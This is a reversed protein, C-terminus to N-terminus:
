LSGRHMALVALIRCWPLLLFTFNSQLLYFPLSGSQYKLVCLKPIARGKRETQFNGHLSTSNSTIYHWQLFLQDLIPVCLAVSLLSLIVCVRSFLGYLIAVSGPRKYGFTAQSQYKLSLPIRIHQKCRTSVVPKFPNTIFKKHNHSSQSALALDVMAVLNDLM